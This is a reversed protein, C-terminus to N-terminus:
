KLGLREDESMKINVPTMKGCHMCKTRQKESLKKSLTRLSNIKWALKTRLNEEQTAYRWVVWYPDLAEGCDDCKITSSGEHVTMFLHKCGQREIRKKKLSIVNLFETEM